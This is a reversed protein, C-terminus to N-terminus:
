FPPKIFLHVIRHTVKPTEFFNKRPIEKGQAVKIATDVAIKADSTPSQYVTGWIEGRGMADYGEGFMCASTIVVDNIRGAAKLANVAGMGMNDDAVYVGDFDGPGYKVLFNEMVTQSKMRDWNGPQTEIIKIGPYKKIATHFGESRESATVYGPFGMIEVVKGRGNLAEAMMEGAYQGELVNDPGCFGKTLNEGSPDIPSNTVLVPINATNAKRVAPIIGKGSVPWIIIVDVRKQILDEVQNAQLAADGKPDLKIYKVGLSKCHEEFAREYTTQYSDVGFNFGTIGITIDSLKKDAAFGTTAMACILFLISTIISICKKM